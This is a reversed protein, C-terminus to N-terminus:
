NLKETSYSIIINRNALFKKECEPCDLEGIDEEEPEQEWSNDFEYECHPCTIEDSWEHNNM